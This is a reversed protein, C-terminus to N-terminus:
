LCMCVYVHICVYLTSMHACTYAHIFVYVHAHMLVCVLCKAHRCKIYRHLLIQKLLSKNLYLEFVLYNVWKCYVIWPAQWRPGKMVVHLCQKGTRVERGGSAPEKQM